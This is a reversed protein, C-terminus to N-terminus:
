RGSGTGCRRVPFKGGHGDLVRDDGDGAGGAGPRRGHHAREGLDETALVDLGRQDLAIGEMAVIAEFHARPHLLLRPGAVLMEAMEARLGIQELLQLRQEAAIAIGAGAADAFVQVVLGLRRRVLLLGARERRPLINRGAGVDQEVFPQM